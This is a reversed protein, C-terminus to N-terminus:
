HGHSSSPSSHFVHSVSAPVVIGGIGLGAITIVVYVLWLNDVRLAAMAGGGATM